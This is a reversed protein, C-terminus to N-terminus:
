GKVCIIARLQHLPKVLDTQNAMIEDINKYAGPTEDLVGADKRCEVGATAKEHDELTFQKKAQTRSMKRGAGHSCSHFSDENGLGEVIYSRTGMSGPIIGFEGKGARVAGKRTVYCEKGFHTEKSIYNHHCNIIRKELDVKLIPIEHTLTRILKRLMIRRNAAAYKQAWDVAIIYDLFTQTGERLYSLEKVPVSLRLSEVEKRAIDMFQRGIQQGINRSGSHLMLWVTDDADLCIELFHNGGGMTGLQQTVKSDEVDIKYNDLLEKIEPKFLTFDEEILHKDNKYWNFGVPIEREISHRIKSLNDPLDSAKLNTPVACMGCGIDVGVAAPIIAGITPIVSGVTTGNGWHCDPMVAIHKHIFSLKSMNALQDYASSEVNDTWIKVPFEGKNLTQVIM